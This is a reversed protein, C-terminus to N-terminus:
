PKVEKLLNDTVSFDTIETAARSAGIMWNVQVSASSYPRFLKTEAQTLSVDILTDSGSVSMSIDAKEKTLIVKGNNYFTVYVYAASHIDVGKVKLSLTPTTYIRM